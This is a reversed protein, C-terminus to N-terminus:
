EKGGHVLQNRGMVEWLRGQIKKKENEWSYVPIYVPRPYVKVKTILDVFVFDFPPPPLPFFCVLQNREGRVVGGKSKM